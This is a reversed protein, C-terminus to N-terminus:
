FKMEKDISNLGKHFSLVAREKESVRETERERERVHVDRRWWMLVGHSSIM